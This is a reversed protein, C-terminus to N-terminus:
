KLDRTLYMIHDVGCVAVFGAWWLWNAHNMDLFFATMFYIM